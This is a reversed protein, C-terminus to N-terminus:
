KFIDDLFEEISGERSYLVNAPKVWQPMGGGIGPLHPIRLHHLVVGV